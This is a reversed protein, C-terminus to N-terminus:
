VFFHNLKGVADNRRDFGNIFNFDKFLGVRDPLFNHLDEVIKEFFLLLNLFGDTLADGGLFSGNGFAASFPFNQEPFIILVFQPLAADRGRDPGLGSATGVSIGLCVKPAGANGARFM